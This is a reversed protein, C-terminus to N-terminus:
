FRHILTFRVRQPDAPKLHRDAAAATESEAQGRPITGELGGGASRDPEHRRARSGPRGRREPVPGPRFALGLKPSGLTASQGSRNWDPPLKGGVRDTRVQYGALHEWELGLGTRPRWERSLELGLFLRRDGQELQDGRGPDRLFYTYDGWRTLASAGGHVQPRAM